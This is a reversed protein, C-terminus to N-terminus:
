LELGTRYAYYLPLFILKQDKIEGYPAESFIYGSPCNRYTNLLLHLSRLKGASGSKVEVPCITENRAFLYDVEATSSKADRSWYYLPDNGASILEQGVFQEALSGKYIDLLDSTFFDNNTTLGCLQQMIGIDLMVAKFKKESASSGLPLGAPSASSIKSVIRANRLLEFAKRITPVSFSESLHTYKIQQGVNKALSSLVSNLCRKDAMPAYKSFDERFTNVLDLQIDLSSGFRGSESFAAISEPMGGALFYNRVEALLTRHITDSLLKPAAIVIEALKEKGCAILFEAFNMPYMDLFRIRGVPMQINRLEFDLLSGAAIVHLGPLEEYFYRLSSLAKPCSQIEDLFLLSRGPEISSNTVIELESIIRKVDLNLDFIGHWDPHKEFNITVIRNDFHTKGFDSVTFSKGVQRAGRIILPKRKKENKWAILKDTIFRKM